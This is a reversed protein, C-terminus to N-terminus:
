IEKKPIDLEVYYKLMPSQFNYNYILEGELNCLATLCYEPYYLIIYPIKLSFDKTCEDGFCFPEIGGHNYEHNPCFYDYCEIAM